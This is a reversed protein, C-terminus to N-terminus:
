YDSSTLQGCLIETNTRHKRKETISISGNLIEKAAFCGWYIKENQLIYQVGAPIWESRGERTKIGTQTVMKANEVTNNGSLFLRFIMDVIKAEDEDIILKGNMLRYGFPAKCTIFNGSEM